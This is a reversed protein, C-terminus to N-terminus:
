GSPMTIIISLEKYIELMCKVAYINYIIAAGYVQQTHPMVHHLQLIYIHLDIATM